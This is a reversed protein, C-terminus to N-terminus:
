SAVPKHLGHELKHLPSEQHPAEPKGPTAQLPSTLVLMVGALTAHIGSAFVLVWLVPRLRL